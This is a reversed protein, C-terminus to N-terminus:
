RPPAEWTARGSGLLLLVRVAGPPVAMAGQVASGKARVEIGELLKTLDAVGKTGLRQRVEDPANKLGELGKKRLRNVDEVFMAAQGADSTTANLRLKLGAKRREIKLFFDDPLARFADPGRTLAARVEPPLKGVVFGDDAAEVTKLSKALPGDMVGKSKGARVALMHGVVEEHDVQPGGREFAGVLLDTDGVLVLGPGIDTTPFHILTVRGDRGGKPQDPEEFKVDPVAGRIVNLLRQRDAKGTLRVYFRAQARAQPDLTYAFSVRDLRVNGVKDVVKYIEKRAPQPVIKGLTERLAKGGDGEREGSGLRVEGVLGVSKPFWALGSGKAGAEGGGPGAEDGLARVARRAYEAAFGAPDQAKKGGAVQRVQQLISDFKEAKKVEAAHEGLWRLALLQAVPSGAEAPEGAALRAMKTVTVEVKHAKFYDKADLLSVLDNSGGGGVLLLLMFLRGLAVGGTAEM